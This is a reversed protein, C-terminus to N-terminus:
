QLKAYNNSPQMDYMCAIVISPVADTQRHRLANIMATLVLGQLFPQVLGYAMQPRVLM